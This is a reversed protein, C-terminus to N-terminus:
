PLNEEADEGPTTDAGKILLWLIGALLCSAGAAAWAAVWGYRATILPTLVPAAAGVLNTGTNMIAASTGAHSPLIEIVTAWYCSVSLSTLGIALTLCALSLLDSEVWAGATLLPLGPLLGAAAVLRRAGIRGFRPILRDAIAGGLPSCVAVALFPFMALYSSRMEDLGRADTLYRYFWSFFVYTVYGVSGYSITLLWMNRHLLITGWPTRPKQRGEPASRAEGPGSDIHRLEGQNVRRHLRPHETVNFVFLAAIVVGILGSIYFSMEWGWTVMLWAILPPTITCGLGVGAFM